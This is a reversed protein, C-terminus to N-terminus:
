DMVPNDGVNFKTPVWKYVQTSLTNDTLTSHRAWSCLCHGRGLSSGLGSLGSTLGSVMLHSHRGCLLVVVCNQM